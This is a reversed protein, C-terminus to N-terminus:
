FEGTIKGEKWLYLPTYTGRSQSLNGTTGLLEQGSRGCFKLQAYPQEPYFDTNRLRKAPLYAWLSFKPWHSPLLMGSTHHLTLINEKGEKRGICRDM